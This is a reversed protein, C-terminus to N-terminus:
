PARRDRPGLVIAVGLWTIACVFLPWEHATVWLAAHNCWEVLASM